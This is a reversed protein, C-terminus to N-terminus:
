PGLWSGKMRRGCAEKARPFCTGQPSRGELGLYPLIHGTACQSWSGPGKQGGMSPDSGGDSPLLHSPTAWPLRGARAEAGRWANAEAPPCAPAPQRCEGCETCPMALWSGQWRGRVRGTQEGPSSLGRGLAQLGWGLPWIDTDWEQCSREGLKRCPKGKSVLM